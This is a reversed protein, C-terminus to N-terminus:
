GDPNQVEAGGPHGGAELHQRAVIGGRRDALRRLAEAGIGEAHARLSPGQRAEDEEAGGHLGDEGARVPGNEDNGRGM